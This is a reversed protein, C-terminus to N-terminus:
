WPPFLAASGCPNRPPPAEVYMMRARHVGLSSIVLEKGVVFRLQGM